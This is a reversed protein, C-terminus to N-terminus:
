HVWVRTGYGITEWKEPNEVPTTWRFLWKAEETRMNICGHSMPVGWNRHWYTGHFAVGSEAVFFSVWPVGPLEYAEIDSTLHGDGMHKSPMKSFINYEGTPTKTPFQGPLTRRNLGTSVSTKLVVEDNEYCTVTQNTLSVEIWKKAMPVDPSIPAYEEPLIPRLHRAPVHYDIDLLEDILKYWPSGDPGEEVDVIWHTSEYYLRYVPEWGYFKTYRMTQTFPVTVEALQGNEQIDYLVPNIRTKVLQLHASHVYGRWVRYWNPNWEPGDKSIVEDYVNILEDRFRQYVIKSQDNPEAYISISPHAVRVVMGTDMTLSDNFPPGFALSSLGLASLKLFDRRSLSNSM